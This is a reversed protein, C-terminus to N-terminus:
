FKQIDGYIKLCKKLQIEKKWKEKEEAKILIEKMKRKRNIAEEINEEMIGRNIYGPEELEKKIEDNNKREIAEELEEIIEEREMKTLRRVKEIEEKILEKNTYRMINKKKELIINENKGRNEEEQEWNVERVEEISFNKEQIIDREKNWEKEWEKIRNEKEEEKREKNIKEWNKIMEKKEEERRREIKNIEEETIEILIGNKNWEKTRV